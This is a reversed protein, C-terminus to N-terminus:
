ALCFMIFSRAPCWASQPMLVQLTIIVCCHTGPSNLVHTCCFCDLQWLLLLLLLLLLV